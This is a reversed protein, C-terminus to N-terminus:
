ASTPPSHDAEHGQRQVWPVWQIPPKTPGLTPRSSACFFFIGVEVPVRVGIRKGDLSYGTVLDFHAIGAWWYGLRVEFPSFIDDRASVSRLVLSLLSTGNGSNVNIM